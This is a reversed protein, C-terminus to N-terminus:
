TKYHDARNDGQDKAYADFRKQVVVEVYIKRVSTKTNSNSDHRKETHGQHSVMTKKELLRLSKRVTPRLIKILM